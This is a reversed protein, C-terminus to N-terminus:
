GSIRDKIARLAAKLEADNEDHPHDFQKVEIWHSEQGPHVYDVFDDLLVTTQLNSEPIFRLDKPAGAWTVFEIDSFWNPVAKESVLANAMERFREESVTTYIVVRPTIAKCAALFAYLGPRPIQSVANSLLTGELDLAIVSQVENRSKM